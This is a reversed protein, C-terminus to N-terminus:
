NAFAQQLRLVESHVQRALEKRDHPVESIARFTLQASIGRKGLLKLLHPVLTMDGWYCVDEAVTGDQVWYRILGAAVSHNTGAIAGFLAPRFPLVTEGNSSTGEPFLVILGGEALANRLQSSLRGSGMRSQRNVFLTGGLRAFIGFVPWSKVESKAVFRAPAIAGIVLIDLYSLHNCVLLGREPAAGSWRVELNFVRLLRVCAEQLWLTRAQTRRERPVLQPGAFYKLFARLLEFGLWSLRVIRLLGRKLM